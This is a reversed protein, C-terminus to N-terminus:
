RWRRGCGGTGGWRPYAVGSLVRADCIGGRNALDEQGVPRVVAGRAGAGAGGGSRECQIARLGVEGGGALVFAGGGGGQLDSGAQAGFFRGRKRNISDM